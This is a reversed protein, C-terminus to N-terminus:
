ARGWLCMRTRLNYLSMFRKSTIGLGYLEYWLLRTSKKAVKPYKIKSNAVQMMDDYLFNSVQAQRVSM